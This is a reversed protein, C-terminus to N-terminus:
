RSAPAFPTLPPEPLALPPPPPEPIPLQASRGRERLSFPNGMPMGAQSQIIPGLSRDATFLAPRAREVPVTLREVTIERAEGLALVHPAAVAIGVATLAIAAIAHSTIRM